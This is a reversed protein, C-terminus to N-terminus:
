VSKAKLAQLKIKADPDREFDPQKEGTEKEKSGFIGKLLALRGKHAAVIEAPSANWTQEPTWSLWGTGIEFLNELVTIFDTETASKNELTTNEPKVNLLALIFESLRDNLAADGDFFSQALSTTNLEFALRKKPILTVPSLYFIKSQVLHIRVLTKSYNKM